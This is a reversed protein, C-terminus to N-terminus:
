GNGTAEDTTWVVDKFEQRAIFKSDETLVNGGEEQIVNFNDLVWNTGGTKSIRVGTGGDVTTAPFKTAM